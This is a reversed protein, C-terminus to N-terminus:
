GCAPELHAQVSQRIWHRIHRGTAPSFFLVWNGDEDIATIVLYRGLDTDFLVVAGRPHEAIIKDSVTLDFVMTGLRPRAALERLEAVQRAQRGSVRGFPDAPIRVLRGPGAIAEPLRQVVQEPLRGAGGTGLLVRKGTYEVVLGTERDGFFHMRLPRVHDAFVGTVAGRVQGHRLSRFLAVAKPTLRGDLSLGLPALAAHWRTHREAEEVVGAAPPGMPLEPNGDPDYYTLVSLRRPLVRALPRVIEDVLEFVTPTSTADSM